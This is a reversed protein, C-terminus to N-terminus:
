STHRKKYTKVALLVLSVFLFGLLIGFAAGCCDLLVDKLQGGRGPVFRQLGEDALATLACFPLPLLLVWSKNQFFPFKRHLFRVCCVSLFGLLAYESFHAAKRLYHSLNADTPRIGFFTLVKELMPRVLALLSNSQESSSIGDRLSNSFIWGQTVFLALVLLIALVLLRRALTMRRNM